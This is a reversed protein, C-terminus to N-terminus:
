SRTVFLAGSQPKWRGASNPHPRMCVLLAGPSIAPHHDCSLVTSDLDVPEAQVVDPPGSLLRSRIARSSHEQVPAAPIRVDPVQNGRCYGAVDGCESDVKTAM